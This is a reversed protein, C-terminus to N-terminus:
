ASAALNRKLAIWSIVGLLVIGTIAALQIILNQYIYAPVIIGSALADIAFHALIACEIGFKWYLWGFVIGYITGVAMLILYDIFPVGPIALKDDLHAWGFILGTILIAIWFIKDTPRGDAEHWIISGLWALGTLLFLRTFIEEQVGADVSALILKWVAPYGEPDVNLNVLLILPTAATAIFVSIVVVTQAWNRREQGLIYGELLPAGLGIRGGLFLALGIVPISIATWLIWYPLPEVPLNSAKLTPIALLNGLLQLAVLIWLAKWSFPRRTPLRFQDFVPAM